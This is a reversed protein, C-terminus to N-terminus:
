THVVGIPHTCFFIGVEGQTPSFIFGVEHQTPSFFIGVEHQTPSFIFGVEGLGKMGYWWDMM